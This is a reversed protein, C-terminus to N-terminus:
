PAEVHEGLKLPTAFVNKLDNGTVRAQKGPVGEEPRSTHVLTYPPELWFRGIDNRREIARKVGAYILERAKTPHLHVAAGNFARNADMGLGTASGRDLGEKVVATDIGPALAEAEQAAALDGSLFVYPVGHYAANLFNRGIEGISVGNITLDEVGFSGSHALHGGPANSKAHQGISIAFDFSADLGAGMPRPRGKLLRAAPHLLELTIAGHGHGDTVVVETVGVELAAEIAANIELTTLECGREYYRSEPFCYSPSDIVGAVGEMDTMVYLKM